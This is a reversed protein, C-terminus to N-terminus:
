RHSSASPAPLVETVARLRLLTRWTEQDALASPEVSLVSLNVLRHGPLLQPPSPLATAVAAALALGDDSGKGRCWIGLALDVVHGDDSGTGNERALASLFAVHPYAAHRPPDAFVKPERLLAIVGPDALLAARIAERLVTVPSSM